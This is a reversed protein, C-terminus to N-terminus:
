GPKRGFQVCAIILLSYAVGDDKVIFRVQFKVGPFSETTILQITVAVSGTV